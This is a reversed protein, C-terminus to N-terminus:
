GIFRGFIFIIFIVFGVALVLWGVSAGAVGAILGGIV